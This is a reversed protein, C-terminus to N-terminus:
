ERWGGLFVISILKRTNLSMKLVDSSVHWAAEFGEYNDGYGRFFGLDVPSLSKLGM